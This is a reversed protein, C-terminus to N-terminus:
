ITTCEQEYVDIVRNLHGLNRYRAQMVMEENNKALIAVQNRMRAEQYTLNEEQETMRGEQETM